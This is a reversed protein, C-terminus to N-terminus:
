ACPCPGARVADPRDFLFSGADAEAPWNQEGAMAGVKALDDISNRCTALTFAALSAEDARAPATGTLSCLLACPLLAGILRRTRNSM